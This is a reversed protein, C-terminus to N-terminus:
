TSAVAAPIWATTVISNLEAGRSALVANIKEDAPQPSDINAITELQTVKGGSKAVADAAAKIGPQTNSDAFLHTFHVINGSGGM